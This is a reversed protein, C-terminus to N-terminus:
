QPLASEDNTRCRPCRPQHRRKAAAVSEATPRLSLIVTVVGRESTSRIEFGSDRFVKLMEENEALVTAQFQLVGNAAAMTALEELRITGLGRGHVADGVAFAVEAVGNTVGLYSSSSRRTSM